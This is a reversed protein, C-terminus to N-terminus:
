YGAWSIDTYTKIVNCGQANLTNIASVYTAYAPREIANFKTKADAAYSEYPSHTYYPQDKVANWEAMVADYAPKAPASQAIYTDGAIKSQESCWMSLANKKAITVCNDYGATQPICGYQDPLNSNTTQKSKAPATQPNSNTQPTDQQSSNVATTAGQTTSETDSTQATPNSEAKQEHNRTLYLASVGGCLMASLISLELVSLGIFRIRMRLVSHYFHSIGSQKKM